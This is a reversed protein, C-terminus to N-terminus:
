EFRSHLTRRQRCEALRRVDYARVPSCLRDTGAERKPQGRQIFRQDCIGSSSHDPVLIVRLGNDLHTDFLELRPLKLDAYAVATTLGMVLGAILVFYLRRTRTM